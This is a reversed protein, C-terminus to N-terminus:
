DCVIRLRNKLWKLALMLQHSCLLGTVKDYLKFHTGSCPDILLLLALFLLVLTYVTSDWRIKSIYINAICVYTKGTTFTTWYHRTANDRQVLNCSTITWCSRHMNISSWLWCWYSCISTWGRDGTFRNPIISLHIHMVFKTRYYPLIHIIIIDWVLTLRIM